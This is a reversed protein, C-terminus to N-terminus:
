SSFTSDLTGTFQILRSNGRKSIAAIVNIKLTHKPVTVLKVEDWLLIWTGDNRPNPKSTLEVASEDIFVRDTLDVGQM